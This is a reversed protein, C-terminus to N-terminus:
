YFRFIYGKRFRCSPQERCQYLIGTKTVGTARSAEGVSGYIALLNGNVDFCKIAMSQSDNWGSDNKILGDNFAEKTNSSVTGWKLNSLSPNSKDNDRHCVIPLNDPNPLYALAVLRHLRRQIHKGDDTIYNIYAYGNHHNIFSRAPYMMDDGYDLYVKGNPTIYANRSGDIKRLEEQISSRSILKGELKRKSM